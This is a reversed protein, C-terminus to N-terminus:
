RKEKKRKAVTTQFITVGLSDLRNRERKEAGLQIDNNKILERRHTISRESDLPQNPFNNGAKITGLKILLLIKSYRSKSDYNDLYLDKGLSGLFNM